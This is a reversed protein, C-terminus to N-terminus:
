AASSRRAVSEAAKAALAREVPLADTARHRALMAAAATELKAAQRAFTARTGSRRKSANSPLKVGDIAFIERGLLGQRDCVALVEAIIPAIDAGLTSVFQAITTFHPRTDGCLAIFTVHETCARAIARSSVTGHSYAFLIVALLM